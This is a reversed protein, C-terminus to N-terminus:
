QPPSILGYGGAHWLLEPADPAEPELSASWGQKRYSGAAIAADNIFEGLLWARGSCKDRDPRRCASQRRPKARSPAGLRANWM